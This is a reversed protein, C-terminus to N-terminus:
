APRRLYSRLPPPTAKRMLAAKAKWEMSRSLEVLFKTEGSELLAVPEGNYYLIRNSTFATIRGGPTIIGVLNLPDAASVSIMSEVADSSSTQAPPTGVALSGPASEIFTPSRFGFDVTGTRARRIARLM